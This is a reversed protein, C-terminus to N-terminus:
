NEHWRESQKDCQGQWFPYECLQFAQLISQGISPPSSGLLHMKCQFKQTIYLLRGHLGQHFGKLFASLIEARGKTQPNLTNPIETLLLHRRYYPSANFRFFRGSFKMTHHLGHGAGQAKRFLLSGKSRVDSQSSHLTMMTAPQLFVQLQVMGIRRQVELARLGYQKGTPQQRVPGHMFRYGYNRRMRRGSFLNGGGPNICHKRTRPHLTRRGPLM